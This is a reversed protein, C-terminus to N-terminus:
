VGVYIENYDGGPLFIYLTIIDNQKKESILISNKIIVKM